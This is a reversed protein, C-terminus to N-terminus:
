QREKPKAEVAPEARERPKREASPDAREKPRTEVAPEAREQGRGSAIAMQLQRQLKADVRRILSTTLRAPLVLTQAALSQRQTGRRADGGPASGIGQWNFRTVLLAGDCIRRLRWEGNRVEVMHYTISIMYRRGNPEMHAQSGPPKPLNIDALTDQWLWPAGGPHWLRLLGSQVPTGATWDAMSPPWITNVTGTGPAPGDTNMEAFMVVALPTWGPLAYANLAYPTWVQMQADLAAAPTFQQGYHMTNNEGPMRETLFSAELLARDSANPPCCTTNPPTGACPGTVFEAVAEDFNVDQDMTVVYFVQQGQVLSVSGTSQTWDHTTTGTPLTVTSGSSLLANGVGVGDQIAISGVGPSGDRSSFWGSFNLTGACPATFQQYVQFNGIVDLYRRTVGVQLTADVDPGDDSSSASRYNCIVGNNQVTDGNVQVVNEQGAGVIVWPSIDVTATGASNTVTVNNGCSWQSTTGTGSKTSQEFGPNGLQNQAQAPLAMLGLPLAAFIFKAFRIM